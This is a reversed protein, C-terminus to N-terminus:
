AALVRDVRYKAEAIADTESQAMAKWGFCDLIPLDPTKPSATTFWISGKREVGITYGRYTSQHCLM